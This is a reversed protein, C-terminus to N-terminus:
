QEQVRFAFRYLVGEQSDKRSINETKSCFIQNKADLLQVAKIAIDGPITHDILVDATVSGDSQLNIEPKGADYWTDGIKYRGKAIVRRTYDRYGQLATDTLLGM